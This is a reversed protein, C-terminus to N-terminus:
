RRFKRCRHQAQTRSGLVSMNILANEQTHSVLGCQLGKWIDLSSIVEQLAEMM